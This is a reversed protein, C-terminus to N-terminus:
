GLWIGGSEDGDGTKVWRMFRICVIGGDPKMYCRAYTPLPINMEEDLRMCEALTIKQRIWIDEIGDRGCKDQMFVNNIACVLTNESPASDDVLTHSQSYKTLRTSLGDSM